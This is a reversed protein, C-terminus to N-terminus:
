CDKRMETNEMLISKNQEILATIMTKLDVDESKNTEQVVMQLNESKEEFAQCTKKHRNFSQVHKYKKGCKCIHYCIESHANQADGESFYASKHKQTKKHQTMLFKRNCGYDCSECFYKWKKRVM